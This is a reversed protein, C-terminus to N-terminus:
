EASRCQDIWTKDPVQLMHKSPWTDEVTKGTCVDKGLIRVKAHGHKGSKSTSVSAVRCVRGRVMVYNGKKLSSAPQPATEDESPQRVGGGTAPSQSASNCAGGGRGGVAVTEPGGRAAAEAELEGPPARARAAQLIQKAQRHSQDLAAVRAQLKELKAAVKRRQKESLDEEGMEDELDELERSERALERAVRQVAATADAVSPVPKVANACPPSPLSAPSRPAPARSPVIASAEGIVDAAASRLFALLKEATPPAVSIPANKGFSWGLDHELRSVVRELRQTTPAPTLEATLFPVLQSVLSRLFAAIQAPTPREGADLKASVFAAREKLLAHASPPIAAAM